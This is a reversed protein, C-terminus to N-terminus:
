VGGLEKIRISLYSLDNRVRFRFPYIQDKQHRLRCAIYKDMVKFKVLTINLGSIPELVTPQM